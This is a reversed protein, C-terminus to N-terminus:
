LASGYLFDLADLVADSNAEVARLYIETTAINAHGLLVQLTKISNMPKGKGQYNELANLVQVAFTHRLHHLTAKSGIEDACHRFARTLASRSVPNGRRTLFVVDRAHEDAPQPRETLIYWQTAEILKAPAQITQLRSGKRLLEIPVLGGGQMAVQNSTPLDRIKLSCAEFRRTGTAICWQFLLRYRAPTVTFLRSIEEISLVKPLRKDVRPAIPNSSRARVGTAWSPAGSARGASRELLFTGLASQMVGRRAGWTHFQAAVVVRHNATSSAYQLRREGHRGNILHNKYLGLHEETVQVLETKCRQLFHLWPILAEAYTRVTDGTVSRSVLATETLFACPLELPLGDGDVIFALPGVDFYHMLDADAKEGETLEVVSERSNFDKRPNVLLVKLESDHM